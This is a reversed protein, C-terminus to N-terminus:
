ISPNSWMFYGARWDVIDSLVCAATGLIELSEAYNPLDKVAKFVTQNCWCGRRFIESCAYWILINDEFSADYIERTFHFYLNKIFIHLCIDEVAESGMGAM